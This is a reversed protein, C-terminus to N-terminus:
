TSRATGEPRSRVRYTLIQLRWIFWFIFVRRPNARQEITSGQRVIPGVAPNALLDLSAAPTM